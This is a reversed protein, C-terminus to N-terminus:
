HLTSAFLHYEVFTPTLTMTNNRQVYERQRTKCCKMEKTLQDTTENM